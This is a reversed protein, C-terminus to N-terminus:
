SEAGEQEFAEIVAERLLQDLGVRDERVRLALVGAVDDHLGVVGQEGQASQGLVGVADNDKVIAGEGADCGVCQVDLFGGKALGVLKDAGDHGGGGGGEAVWTVHVVVEDADDSTQYGSRAAM